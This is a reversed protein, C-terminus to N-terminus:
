GNDNHSAWKRLLEIVEAKSQPTPSRDDQPHHEAVYGKSEIDRKAAELERLSNCYIFGHHEGFTDYRHLRYIM